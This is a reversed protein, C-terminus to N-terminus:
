LELPRITAGTGGCRGAAGSGRCRFSFLILGANRLSEYGLGLEKEMVEGSFNNTVADSIKVLEKVLEVGRPQQLNLTIDMKNPNLVNFHLSENPPSPEAGQRMVARRSPDLLNWTEIKIVEAGLFALLTTCTPGAWVWCFDVIRIGELPMRDM